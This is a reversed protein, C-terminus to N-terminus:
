SVGNGPTGTGSHESVHAEEPEKCARFALYYEPAGTEMFLKWYEEPKM